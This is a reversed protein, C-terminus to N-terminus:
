LCEPFEKVLGCQGLECARLAARCGQQMNGSLFHIGSKLTWVVSETPASGAVLDIDHRADELHRRAPGLDGLQILIQAKVFNANARGARAENTSNLEISRDYAAVADDIRFLAMLAHGRHLNVSWALEPGNSPNRRGLAIAKDLTALSEEARGLQFLTRGRYILASELDGALALAADFEILAKAYEQRDFLATGAQYYSNARLMRKQLGTAAVASGRTEITSSRAESSKYALLSFALLVSASIVTLRNM